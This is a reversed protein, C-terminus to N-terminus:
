GAGIVGILVLGYGAAIAGGATRLAWDGYGRRLAVGGFLGAVHLLATAILMGAFYGAASADGMEAVHAHGHCVAFVAVMAHGIAPNLKPVCAVALGFVLVSASIGWEFVTLGGAAWVLGLLGGAAMMGVFAAPLTWMKKVDMRASLLGVAVMALLHDLGHLPHLFGVGFSGQDHGAHALTLLHEYLM